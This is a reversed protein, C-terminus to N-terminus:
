FLAKGFITFVVLALLALNVVYFTTRLYRPVPASMGRIIAGRWHGLAWLGFGSAGPGWRGSGFALRAGARDTYVGEGFPGRQSQRREKSGADNRWGGKICTRVVIRGRDRPGDM